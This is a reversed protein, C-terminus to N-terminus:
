LIFKRLTQKKQKCKHYIVSAIRSYILVSALVIKHCLANFFTQQGTFEILFRIRMFAIEALQKM